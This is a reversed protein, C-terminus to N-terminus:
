NNLCIYLKIILIIYLFNYFHQILVAFISKVKRIRIQNVILLVDLPKHQARRLLDLHARYADRSVVVALQAREILKM